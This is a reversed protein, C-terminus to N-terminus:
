CGTTTQNVTQRNRHIPLRSALNLQKGKSQYHTAQPYRPAVEKRKRKLRTLAKILIDSM